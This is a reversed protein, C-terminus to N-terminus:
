MEEYLEEVMKQLKTTVETQKNPYLHSYTEMTTQVREHGLREAILLISFGLEVLLSAHSHRLDHVRIRKVGTKNIGRLMETNLHSKTFDFIRDDVDLDYQQEILWELDDMLFDPLPIIRKSKPTKPEMIMHEGNVVAFNKNISVTKKQFDLDNPTLALLEGSRIGSYYLLEFAVRSLPKNDFVHIFTHFEDPTWIEMAEANKKGMSGCTRAPNEQLKYFKMAYNFMATLQNHITKLYTPKYDQAKLENQWKRVHAPTIDNISYSKFYPLIKLEILVRKNEYTTPKRNIKADEMYIDYLSQFSMNCDAHAKDLFEREFQLAERKTKFGKKMKQKNNGQWSKYYFKTYWKGTTKDKYAPM